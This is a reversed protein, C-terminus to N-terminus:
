GKNKIKKKKKKKKREYPSYQTQRLDSKTKSCQNSM